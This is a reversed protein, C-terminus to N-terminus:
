RGWPSIQAVRSILRCKIHMLFPNLAKKTAQGQHRLKTWSQSHILNVSSKRVAYLSVGFNELRAAVNRGILNERRLGHQPMLTASRLFEVAGQCKGRRVRHQLSAFGLSLVKEYICIKIPM